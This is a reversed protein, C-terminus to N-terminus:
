WDSSVRTLPMSSLRPSGCQRSNRDSQFHLQADIREVGFPAANCAIRFALHHEHLAGKRPLFDIELDQALLGRELDTAEGLDQAAGRAPLRRAARMEAYAAAAAQLVGIRAGLHRRLLAPELFVERADAFHHRLGQQRDDVALVPM